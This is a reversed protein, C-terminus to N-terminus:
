KELIYLVSRPLNSSCAACTVSPMLPMSSIGKLGAGASNVMFISSSIQDFQCGFISKLSPPREPAGLNM